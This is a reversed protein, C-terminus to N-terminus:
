AYWDIFRKFTDLLRYFLNTKGFPRTTHAHLGQCVLGVGTSYIPSAIVGSMGKLGQPAGVRAPADFVREAVEEIGEMLASGGTLVVGAVLQDRYPTRDLQQKVLRLIEEARSQIVEALFRRSRNARKPDIFGPSEFEEDEAVSQAWACGHKKKVNEADYRSMKLVTAIDHTINDGGFPVVGSYKISGGTYIALDTTGGGMDILLVGLDRQNDDLVALSSALSELMVDATRFGAQNVCRVINQASTIAATVIHCRVELRNGALGIPNQIGVEDDVFYEQPVCHIIERDIPMAVSRAKELVRAVDTECVGRQPNAIEVVGRSNESTIHGGAIGVFVDRVPVEAMEEAKDVARQISEVTSDIDIVVGRRLGVSPVSGFGQITLDGEPTKKGIIACIKTTGIDLGTIFKQRTRRRPVPARTSSGAAAPSATPPSLVASKSQEPSM